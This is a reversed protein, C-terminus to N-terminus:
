CYFGIQNNSIVHITGGIDYGAVDAGVITEYVVGQGAFSADGHLLVCVVKDRSIDGTLDQEGRM